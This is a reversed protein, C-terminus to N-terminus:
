NDLQNEIRNIRGMLDEWMGVTITMPTNRRANEAALLEAREKLREKEELKAQEARKFEDEERAIRDLEENEKARQFDRGIKAIQTSNFAVGCIRLNCLDVHRAMNKRSCKTTAVNFSRKLWSPKDMPGDLRDVIIYTGDLTYRIETVLGIYHVEEPIVHGRKDTFSVEVLNGKEIYQDWFRVPKYVRYDRGHSRYIAYLLKRSEDM